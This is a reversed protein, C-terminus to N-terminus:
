ETLRASALIANAREDADNQPLGIAEYYFTAVLSSSCFLLCTFRRQSAPEYGSYRGSHIGSKESLSPATM